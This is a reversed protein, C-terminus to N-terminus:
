KAQEKDLQMVLDALANMDKFHTAVMKTPPISIGFSDRVFQMVRMLEFSNIVGWELLPTDYELGIDKGDLVTTAVFSKLSELFKNRDISM